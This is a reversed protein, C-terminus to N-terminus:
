CLDTAGTAGAAWGGVFVCDETCEMFLRVHLAIFVHDMRDALQAWAAAATAALRACACACARLSIVTKIFNFAVNM